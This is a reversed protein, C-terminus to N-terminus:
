SRDVRLCRTGRAGKADSMSVVAPTVKQVIYAFILPARGYPTGITPQTATRAGAFPVMQRADARICQHRNAAAALIAPKRTLKRSGKNASIDNHFREGSDSILGNEDRAKCRQYARPDPLRM